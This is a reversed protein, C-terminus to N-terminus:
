DEIRTDQLVTVSQRLRELLRAEGVWDILDLTEDLEDAAYKQLFETTSLRHTEEYARLREETRQIGALLFRTENELAGAVLERLAYAHPSRLTIETM